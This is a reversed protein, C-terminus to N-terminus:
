KVMGAGREGGKGVRGGRGGGPASVRRYDWSVRIVCGRLETIDFM